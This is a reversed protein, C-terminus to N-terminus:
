RDLLKTKDAYSYYGDSTLILHDLLTLDVAQCAEKLKYTVNNDSASPKANGSPHNHAILVGVARCQLALTLVLKIDITTADLSGTSITRFGIVENARNIFLACFQEQIHFLEKDWMESFVKFADDVNKIRVNTRTTPEYSVKLEAVAWNDALASLGKQENKNVTMFYSIHCFLFAGTPTVTVCVCPTNATAEKTAVVKPANGKIKYLFIYSIQGLINIYCDNAFTLINKLQALM